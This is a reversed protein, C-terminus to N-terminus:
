SQGLPLPLASPLCGMAARMSGSVSDLMRGVSGAHTGRVKALPVQKHETVSSELEEGEASTTVVTQAVNIYMPASYTLNRLRAEKPFLTIIEGDPEAATPKSLYIQGFKIRYEKQEFEEEFGQGGLHQNEPKVIIEPTENVVDQMTNSVFENFSDLQQGVLGKEEFFATIVTWADEQTM